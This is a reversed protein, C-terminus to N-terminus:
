RTRWAEKIAWRTPAEVHIYVFDNGDELLAQVAAAAKGEYNTTLGGTAGRSM